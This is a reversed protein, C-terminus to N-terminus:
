RPRWHRYRCDACRPSWGPEHLADVTVYEDPANPAQRLGVWFDSFREKNAVLDLERESAFTVVHGGVGQCLTGAEDISPPNKNFLELYCHLSADDVYGADCEIKCASCGSSATAGPDCEEGADPEITGNGCISPAGAPEAVVLDPLCAGAVFAGISCSIAAALVGVRTM